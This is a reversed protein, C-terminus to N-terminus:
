KVPAAAVGEPSYAIGTHVLAPLDMEPERFFLPASRGDRDKAPATWYAIQFTVPKLHAAVELALQGNSKRWMSGDPDGAAWIMVEGQEGHVWPTSQMVREKDEFGPVAGETRRHTPVDFPNDRQPDGAVLIQIPQQSAPVFFTRTFFGGGNMVEDYGPMELVEMGGTDWKLITRSGNVYFGKFRAQGPPPPIFGPAAGTTFAVNGMARAYKGGSTLNMPATFKGTWAGAIRCLELDYAVAAEGHDGIKIAIGRLATTKPM